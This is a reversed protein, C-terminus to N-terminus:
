TEEGLSFDDVILLMEELLVVEMKMAVGKSNRKVRSRGFLLPVGVVSAVVYRLPYGIPLRSWFGVLSVTESPYELSFRIPPVSPELEGRSVLLLRM